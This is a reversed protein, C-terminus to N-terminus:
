SSTSRRATNKTGPTPSGPQSPSRKKRDHAPLAPFYEKEVIEFFERAPLTKMWYEHRSDYEERLKAVKEASARVKGDDTAITAQLV